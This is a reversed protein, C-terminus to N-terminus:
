RFQFQLLGQRRSKKTQPKAEKNVVQTMITSNKPSVPGTTKPPHWSTVAPQFTLGKFLHASYIHIELFVDNGNGQFSRQDNSFSFCIFDSYHSNEATKTCISFCLSNQDQAKKKRAFRSTYVNKVPRGTCQKQSQHDCRGQAIPIPSRVTRVQSAYVIKIKYRKRM